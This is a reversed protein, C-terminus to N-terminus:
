ERMLEALKIRAEMNAIYAIIIEQDVFALWGIGHALKVCRLKLRDGISPVATRSFTLGSM